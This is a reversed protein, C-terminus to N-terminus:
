GLIGPASASLHQAQHAKCFARKSVNAPKVFILLDETYSSVQLNVITCLVRWLMGALQQNLVGRAVLILKRTGQAQEPPHSVLNPQQKLIELVQDSRRMKLKNQLTRLPMFVLDPQQKVFQLVQDCRCVKLMNQLTRPLM